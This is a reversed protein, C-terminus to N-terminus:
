SSDPDCHQITTCQPWEYVLSSHTHDAYSYLIHIFSAQRRLWRQRLAQQQFKVQLLDLIERLQGQLKNKDNEFREAADYQEDVETDFIEDASRIWPAYILFFKHGAQYIFHEDARSSTDEEEEDSGAPASKDHYCTRQRKNRNSNSGDDGEDGDDNTVDVLRRSLRKVEAQARNKDVEYQRAIESVRDCSTLEMDRIMFCDNVKLLDAQSTNISLPPVNESDSDNPSGPRNDSHAPPPPMANTPANTPMPDGTYLYELYRVNTPGSWRSAILILHRIM